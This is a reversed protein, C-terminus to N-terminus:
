ARRRAFESYAVRASKGPDLQRRGPWRSGQLQAIVCRIQSVSSSQPVLVGSVGYDDAAAACCSTPSRTNIV